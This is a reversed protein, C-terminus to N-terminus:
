QVVLKTFGPVTEEFVRRVGHQITIPSIPCHACAGRLKITIVGDQTASVLDIKGGHTRAYDQVPGLLAEIEQEFPTRKSKRFLM